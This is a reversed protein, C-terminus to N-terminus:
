PEVAQGWVDWGEGAGLFSNSLTAASVGAASLRLFDRRSFGRAGGDQTDNQRDSAAMTGGEEQTNATRTDTERCRSLYHSVTLLSAWGTLNTGPPQPPTPHIPAPPQVRHRTMPNLRRGGYM